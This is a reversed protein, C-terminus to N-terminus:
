VILIQRLKGHGNIDVLLPDMYLFVLGGLGNIRFLRFLTQLGQQIREGQHEIKWGFVNEELDASLLPADKLIFFLGRFLLKMLYGLPPAPEQYIKGIIQIRSQKEIM